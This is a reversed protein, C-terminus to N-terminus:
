NSTTTKSLRALNNIHSMLSLRTAMDFHQFNVILQDISNDTLLELTADHLMIKWPSIHYAKAVAEVSDVGCAREDGPNLMYGIARQSLSCKKALSRQTDKHYEMLIRLNKAVIKAENNMSDSYDIQIANKQKNNSCFKAVSSGHINQSFGLM